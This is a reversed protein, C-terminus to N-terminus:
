HQVYIESVERMFGFIWGAPRNMLVIIERQSAIASAVAVRQKQGGSLAMPHKEKYVLLDLSELISAATGAGGAEYLPM